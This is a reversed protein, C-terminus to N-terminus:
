RFIRQTCVKCAYLGVKFNDYYDGTYPRETGQNQCIHFEYPTLKEAIKQNINKVTEEKWQLYDNFNDFIKPQNENKNEFILPLKLKGENTTEYTDLKQWITKFKSSV